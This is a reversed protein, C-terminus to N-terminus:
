RRLIDTTEQAASSAGPVGQASKFSERAQMLQVWGMNARATAYNPNAALAMQLADQAMDLRGQRVYEVALNNWPEPLEPYLATMNLYHEIAENHRELGALARGRLFLLQVDSGVAMEAERQAARRDIIDLAEAYRGSDMMASIRDTVQSPTMPISTDVGPSLAELVKALGKWGGERRPPDDFLKEGPAPASSIVVTPGLAKAGAAGSTNGSPQLSAELNINPTLGDAAQQAHTAFATIMGALLLTMALLRRNDLHM